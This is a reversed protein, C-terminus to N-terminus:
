AESSEVRPKPESLWIFRKWFKSIAGSANVLNAETEWTNDEHPYGKWKVLYLRGDEEKSDLIEELEYEQSPTRDM